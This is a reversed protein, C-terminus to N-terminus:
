PAPDTPVRREVRPRATTNQHVFLGFFVSRIQQVLSEDTPASPRSWAAAIEAGLLLASAALFVSYLFVLASTLSAYVASISLGKVREYIMGSVLSIALLLLATVIAGALADGTNLRRAPVFRYLLLVVITTVLLPVGTRVARELLGGDLGISALPQAIWGFIVAQALNLFVAGLVLAASCIVLVLDVLKGHAAPRGRPVRMATELGARLAAMMGTAAWAFVLLSGLGLATAPSALQEIQRAVGASGSESLPFTGVIEGIVQSKLNDDRLIIGFIAVLVISLPVLSFLVRYAIGAAHQGCRDGFYGEIAQPIVRALTRLLKGPWHTLRLPWPPKAGPPQVDKMM